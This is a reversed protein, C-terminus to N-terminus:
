VMAALSSSTPRRRVASRWATRQEHDQGVVLGFPTWHTTIRLGGGLSESWISVLRGFQKRHRFSGGRRPDGHDARCPPALAPVQGLEVAVGTRAARRPRNLARLTECRLDTKYPAKTHGCLASLRGLSEPPKRTPCVGLNGGDHLATLLLSALYPSRPPWPGGQCGQQGRPRAIRM